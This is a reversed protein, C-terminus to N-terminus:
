ASASLVQVLRERNRMAAGYWANVVYFTKGARAGESGRNSEVNIRREIGIAIGSKDTGMPTIYNSNGGGETAISSTSFLAFKGYMGLYGAADAVVAFDGASRTAASTIEDTELQTQGAPGVVHAIRTGPLNVNLARWAAGAATMKARNYVDTVAGQVHTASNAAAHIDSDMRAAMANIAEALLPAPMGNLTAAFLEDTLPMEFGVIGPTLSEESMAPVVEAFDSGETKTGATPTIVGWRPMKVAISGQTGVLACVLLGTLAPYGYGDIVQGLKETPIIVAAAAADFNAM